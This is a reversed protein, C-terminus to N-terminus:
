SAAERAIPPSARRHYLRRLQQLARHVRVKVAGTSCGLVDGIQHYRLGHFRALVLVERKERPLAGFAVRLLRTAEARELSELQRPEDRLGAPDVAISDRADLAEEDPRAAQRDYLVHRAVGFIWPRFSRTPQFSHCYRLVRCFAEQVADESSSRDDTMRLCFNFLARHHRDFLSGLAELDGGQLRRMLEGDSTQSDSDSM